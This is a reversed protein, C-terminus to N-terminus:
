LCVQLLAVEIDNETFFIATRIFFTLNRPLVFVASFIEASLIGRFGVFDAFYRAAASLVTPGVESYHGLSASYLYEYRIISHINFQCSPCCAAAKSHIKIYSM